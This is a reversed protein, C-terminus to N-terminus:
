DQNRTYSKFIKPFEDNATKLSENTGIDRNYISNHFIQIKGMFFPLVETSLDITTKGLKELFNFITPEFIYVAANARNSPPNSVKEHFQIVINNKDTEIIGCSQPADTDFAMMTIEVSSPRNLHAAIFQDLNFLTLNDAHAVLFSKKNFFDRNKLITGGTGLLREEFVLQINEKFESKEIFEEVMEPLYHTNLLIKDIKETSLQSLWYSLLPRNDIEVLCKPVHNTIPKLRTGYGAALLLARM